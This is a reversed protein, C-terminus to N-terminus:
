FCIRTKPGHGYLSEIENKLNCNRFFILKQFFTKRTNETNNHTENESSVSVVGKKVGIYRVTIFNSKETNQKAVNLPTIGGVAPM